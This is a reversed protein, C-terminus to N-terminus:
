LGLSLATFLKTFELFQGQPQFLFRSFTLQQLFYIPSKLLTPIQLFYTKVMLINGQTHYICGSALKAPIIAELQSTEAPLHCLTSRLHASPAPLPCQSSAGGWGSPRHTSHLSTCCPTPLRIPHSGGVSMATDSGLRSKSLSDLCGCM